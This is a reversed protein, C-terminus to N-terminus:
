QILLPAQLFGLHSHWVQRLHLSLALFAASSRIRFARASAKALQRAEKRQRTEEQRAKKAMRAEKALQEVKRGKPIYKIHTGKREAAKRARDKCKRCTQCECKPKRWAGKSM